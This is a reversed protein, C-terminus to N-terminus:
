QGPSLQNFLHQKDAAALLFDPRWVEKDHGKGSEYPFMKLVMMMISEPSVPKQKPCGSSKALKQEQM